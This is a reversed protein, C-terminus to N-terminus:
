GEHDTLHDTSGTVNDMGVDDGLMNGGHFSTSGEVEVEELTSFILSELVQQRQTLYEQFESQRMKGFQRPSPGIWNGKNINYYLYTRKAALKSENHLSPKHGLLIIKGIKYWKKKNKDTSKPIKSAFIFKQKSPPPLGKYKNNAIDELVRDM